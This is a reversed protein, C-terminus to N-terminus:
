ALPRQLRCRRHTWRRRSPPRPRNGRSPEVANDVRAVRATSRPTESSSMTSAANALMAPKTEHAGEQEVADGETEHDRSRDANADAEGGSRGAGRDAAVDAGVGKGSAARADTGEEATANPEVGLQDNATIPLSGPEVTM